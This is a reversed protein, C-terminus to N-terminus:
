DIQPTSPAESASAGRGMTELVESVKAVLLRVDTSVTVFKFGQRIMKQANATSATHIGAVISAQQARDLIHEIAKVVADESPDLQPEYGLALALDSPGVYIADLGEVSLISDINDLGARTEIMAMTIITRNAKAVYDPGAYISARIPGCSRTGAPPYRCAAVFERAESASNIMPCIVGYAGADLVKMIIAPDLWPVRVLPVTSTTSIAQLMGVASQYDILGHQLDITLSDWGQHAMVEASFAAPLSLWGNVAYGDQQWLTRLLNERMAIKAKLPNTARTDSEL